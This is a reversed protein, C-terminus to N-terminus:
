RWLEQEIQASSHGAFVSRAWVEASWLRMRLRDIASDLVPEFQERPLGLVDRLIGDRLFEPRASQEIWSGAEFDMGYIKPRHAITLPLLRRAVDRLIGKSWPGVRAELPLNMVLRVLAPELLPVRAEVSCQMINRDMRNLLFCLTFDLHDMLGAELTQREGSHHAYAALGAADTGNFTGPQLVPTWGGRDPLRHTLRLAVNRARPVLRRPDLFRWPTPLLRPEAWHILSQTAPLFREVEAGHMDPYGGFLEDAGEGTMLVKVGHREARAALHSVTVASAHALPGGHHLTAVVFGDLWSAPTVDVIELQIGLAGAVKRAALGEDLVGDAKLSASFAVMDPKAETALATILSSDLGGSCLTGVRADALLSGHVATRLTAELENTLATRSLTGLRAADDPDVDDAPAHWRVERSQTDDTSIIVCTGHAMRSIGDLLTTPGGLYAGTRISHWADSIPMAPLGAALLATEESAFWVAGEHNAVYLPKIGYRDRCLILRKHERDLAAFAFQGSLRPIVDTGHSALAHLLTETDSDGTFATADLERRLDLHNYIEGNYSLLWRGDPHRMPQHGRPSLDIISLRTHVLGVNEVIAIGSDDPGRHGLADRMARLRDEPPNAGVKLVCGGIGCM